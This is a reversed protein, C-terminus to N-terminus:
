NEFIQGLEYDAYSESCLRYKIIKGDPNVLYNQPIFKVDYRLFAENKWGKLDSVNIWSISDQRIANTWSNKDHDASIGVIELGKPKYKSYIKKLWKFDARCPGCSSSWFDILVYKGRYDSLKITDGTPTVQMIEPALDGVKPPEPLEIYKEIEIGKESERLESFLSNFAYKIQDKKLHRFALYSESHLINLAVYSDSHNSIFGVIGDSLNSKLEEILLSDAKQDEPSKFYLEEQMKNIEKTANDVLKSYAEFENQSTSGVITSNKLFEFDGNIIIQGPELWVYKMDRFPQKNRQNHLLFYQPHSLPLSYNFEGNVVQISDVLIRSEMDVLFLTTKDPANKLTGTLNCERKEDNSCSVVLLILLILTLQVRM